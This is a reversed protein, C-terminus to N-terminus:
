NGHDCTSLFRLSVKDPGFAALRTMLDLEVAPFLSAHGINYTIWLFIRFGNKAIKNVIIGNAGETEVLHGKDISATPLLAVKGPPAIIIVWQGRLPIHLLAFPHWVVDLIAGVPPDREIAWGIEIPGCSWSAVPAM